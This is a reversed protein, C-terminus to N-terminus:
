NTPIFSKDEPSTPWACEELDCFNPGISLSSDVPVVMNPAFPACMISKLEFCMAALDERVCSLVLEDHVSFYLQCDYRDLIGSKWVGALILKTQEAASSQIHFNTASRLEHGRGPGYLRGAVHKRAGLFTASYGQREVQAQYEASWEIMRPFAAARADLFTQATEESVVLKKSLTFAGGGFQALFNTSKGDRRAAKADPDSANMAAQFEEYTLDGGKTKLYVQHGTLEHLDKTAGPLYCDMFNKDRSADAAIRLEQSKADPAVIVAGPKHPVVCKRIKKGEESRKPIQAINPASPSFRRSTTSSQKLNSHIRGTDWHVFHKYKSFYLSNRTAIARAKIVLEVLEADEGTLDVKAAWNLVDNDTSPNGARQGKAAQVETLENNFRVPVKLMEYLLATCDKPSNPKFKPRPVFNEELYDNVADLDGALLLDGYEGGVDAVLKELIRFRSKLPEGTLMLYGRKIEAPDLSTLPAFTTGPWGLRVLHGTILEQAKELEVADDAQLKALVELDCPFGNQIAYATAYLSDGEVLEYAPWTGELEMTLMSRQYLASSVITDDAGYSLTHAATLESM